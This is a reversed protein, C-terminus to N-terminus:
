AFDGKTPIAECDALCSGLEHLLPSRQLGRGILVMRNRPSEEGWDVRDMTFRRGVLHFVHRGERDAFWLIGKARYASDPLQESLFRQLRVIDFPRDSEFAVSEFDNNAAHDEGRSGELDHAAKIGLLAAIPAGAHTTHLLRAGPKIRRLEEEVAFIREHTTLDVKNLLLLDGYRIQNYAPTDKLGCATFNACDVLTLIADLRVYPSLDRGVFTTAVPLPDAVGTTEVILHDIEDRGMLLRAVTEMLDRNITCCICGNNLEVVGESSTAVLDQDIGIEGFDNVIVAARLGVSNRLIHNLLTTKGSGLFGTVVTVPLAAVKAHGSVM